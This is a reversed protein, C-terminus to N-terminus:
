YAHFNGGIWDRDEWVNGLIDYEKKLYTMAKHKM